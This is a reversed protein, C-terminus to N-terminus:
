GGTAAAGANIEDLYAYAQEVSLVGLHFDAIMGEEDIIYTTPLGRVLYDGSLFSDPDLLVDLDTVGIAELFAAIAEPSEGQNLALVVAGDEGQEQAFRQLDPLEDVCPPCDTRWFNLFVPRGRLDALSITNGDLAALTFQPAPRRSGASAVPNSQNLAQIGSPSPNEAALMALAIALGILGTTFFLILLPSIGGGSRPLTTM